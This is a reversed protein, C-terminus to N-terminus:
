RDQKPSKDFREDVPKCTSSKSKFRCDNWVRLENLKTQLREHQCSLAWVTPWGGLGSERERILCFDFVAAAFRAANFQSGSKKGSFVSVSEYALTKILRANALELCASSGYAAGSDCPSYRAYNWAMASYVAQPSKDNYVSFEGLSGDALYGVSITAEMKLTSREEVECLPTWSTPRLALTLKYSRHPGEMTIQSNQVEADFQGCGPLSVQTASVVMEDGIYGSPSAMHIAWTGCQPCELPETEESRAAQTLCLGLLALALTRLM